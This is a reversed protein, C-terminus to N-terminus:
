HHHHHQHEHSHSDEHASIEEAVAGRLVNNLLYDPQNNEKQLQLTYSGDPQKEFKGPTDIEMEEAVHKILHNFHQISKDLRPNSDLASADIKFTNVKRATQVNAVDNDLIKVLLSTTLEQAEFGPLERAFELTLENKATDMNFLAATLLQDDSFHAGTSIGNMHHAHNEIALFKATYGDDTLSNESRANNLAKKFNAERTKNLTLEGNENIDCSFSDLYRATREAQIINEAIPIGKYFTNTDEQVKDLFDPRQHLLKQIHEGPEIKTEGPILESVLGKVVNQVSSLLVADIACGFSLMSKNARSMADLSNLLNISSNNNEKLGKVQQVAEKPKLPKINVNNISNGFINM